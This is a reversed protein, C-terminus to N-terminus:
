KGNKNLELWLEAVAEEPNDYLFNTQPYLPDSTGGVPLVLTTASWMIKGSLNRGCVLSEFNDGCAEILESLIPVYVYEKIVGGGLTIGSGFQSFGTDKLKKALEYNM